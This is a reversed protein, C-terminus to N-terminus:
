RREPNLWFTLYERNWGVLIRDFLLARPMPERPGGVPGITCHANFPYESKNWGEVLRRMALLQSTPELRIVDVETDYGRGGFVDLGSVYLGIPGNTMALASADKAMENFDSEKLDKTEGAYVLTLHPLDIKCWDTVTPLLAIMASGKSDDTM